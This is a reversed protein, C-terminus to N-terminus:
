WYCGCWDIGRSCQRWLVWAAFPAGFAPGAGNTTLTLTRADMGCKERVRKKSGSVSAGGM